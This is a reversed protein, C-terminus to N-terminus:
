YSPEMKQRVTEAHKGFRKDARSDEPQSGDLLRQRLRAGRLRCGESEISGGIVVRRARVGGVCAGFDAAASVSSSSRTAVTVRKGEGRGLTFETIALDDVRWVQLLVEDILVEASLATPKEMDIGLFFFSFTSKTTASSQDEERFHCMSIQVPVLLLPPSACIWHSFEKVGSLLWSM